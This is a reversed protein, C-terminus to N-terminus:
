RPVPFFNSCFTDSLVSDHIPPPPFHPLTYSVPSSAFHLARGRVGLLKQPVPCVLCLQPCLDHCVCRDMDPMCRRTHVRLLVVVPACGEVSLCLCVRSTQHCVAHSRVGCAVCRIHLFSLM